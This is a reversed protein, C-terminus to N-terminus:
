LDSFAAVCSTVEFPRALLLPIMSVAKKFHATQHHRNHDAESRWECILFFCREIHTCKLLDYKICGVEQRCQVILERLIMEFESLSNEKVDFRTIFTLQNAQSSFNTEQNM